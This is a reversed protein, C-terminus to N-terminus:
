RFAAAREVLLGYSLGYASVQARECSFRDM